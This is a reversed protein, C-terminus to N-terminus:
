DSLAAARGGFPREREAGIRKPATERRFVLLSFAFFASFPTERDFILLSVASPHGM